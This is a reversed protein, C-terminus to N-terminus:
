SIQLQDEKEFCQRIMRMEVCTYNSDDLFPQQKIINVSYDAQQQNAKILEPLMPTHQNQQSSSVVGSLVTPCNPSPSTLRCAGAHM